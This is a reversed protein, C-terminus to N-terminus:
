RRRRWGIWTPRGRSRKAMLAAVRAGVDGGDGAGGHGPGDTRDAKAEVADNDELVEALGRDGEEPGAQRDTRRAKARSSPLRAPMVTSSPATSRLSAAASWALSPSGASRLWPEGGEASGLEGQPFQRNDSLGAELEQAALDTGPQSRGGAGASAVVQDPQHLRLSLAEVSRGSRLATAGSKTWAARDAHRFGLKALDLM